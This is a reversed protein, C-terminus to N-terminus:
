VKSSPRPNCSHLMGTIIQYRSLSLRPIQRVQRAFGKPYREQFFVDPESPALNSKCHMCRIAEPNIHEKCFPCVGWPCIERASLHSSLAQVPRRRGKNRGQLVSVATNSVGSRTAYNAGGVNAAM